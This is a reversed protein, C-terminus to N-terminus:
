KKVYFSQWAAKVLANRQQTLADIRNRKEAPALRSRMIAKVQKNISGLQKRIKGFRRKYRVKNMNKSYLKQASEYDGTAQYYKITRTTRDIEDLTDYFWTQHKTYRAPGKSKVFRGIAPYDDIKRTAKEPFDFINRTAIDSIGLLFMGFTSFYGQILSEARKPSIGMKGALQLTESTWPEAQEGAKLGKLGESVIPRGTYSSKNAWQEIMPTILQPFSIAFTEKATYGIVNGVHKLNENGNLVNAMAEPFSSFLAGVEFPKPIRYHQNGLWFHYYSWKDWDELEKYEDDDKHLMWLALSAATLLAGRLMFTKRTDPDAVTKGLKYLGQMRANLFPVTQILFQVINAEGRMTFDLLDRADFAAEFHTKGEKLLNSYLQVRAANESAAGVKEWFDLMKKPTNLIRSVAGKGEKKVIRDVYKALSKPDDGRVYSSGFGAGSAM